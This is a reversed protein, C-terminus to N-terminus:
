LFLYPVQKGERPKAIRIFQNRRSNKYRVEKTELNETPGNKLEECTNKIANLDSSIRLASFLLRNPEKKTKRLRM